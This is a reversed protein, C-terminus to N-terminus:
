KYDFLYKKEYFKALNIEATGCICLTMDSLGIITKCTWYNRFNSSLFWAAVKDFECSNPGRPWEVKFLESVHVVCLLPIIIIRFKCHCKWSTANGRLPEEDVSELYDTDFWWRVITVYYRATTRFWLWTGRWSWISGRRTGWETRPQGRKFRQYTPIFHAHCRVSKSSAVRTEPAKFQM